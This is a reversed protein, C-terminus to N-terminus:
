LLCNIMDTMFDGTGCFKGVVGDIQVCFPGGSGGWEGGWGCDADTVCPECHHQLEQIATCSNLCRCDIKSDDGAGTESMYLLKGDLCSESSDFCYDADDPIEGNEAFCYREDGVQYCKEAAPCSYGSAPTQEKVCDRNATDCRRGAGCDANVMCEVCKQTEFKDCVPKLPDNCDNNTACGANGAPDDICSKTKSYCIENVACDFDGMCEVCKQTEFIDCIPMVPDHCDNNTACEAKDAVKDICTKTKSDCKEDGACDFSGMCEVCRNSEYHECYPKAPNTCDTDTRCEASAGAEVDPEGADPEDASEEPTDDSESVDPEDADAEPIENNEITDPEDTSAEPIENNDNLTGGDTASEDIPRQAECQCPSWEGVESRCYHFGPEGNACRCDIADGPTCHIAVSAEPMNCSICLNLIFFLTCLKILNDM